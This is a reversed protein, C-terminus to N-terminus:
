HSGRHRGSVVRRRARARRPALFARGAAQDTAQLLAGACLHGVRQVSSHRRHHVREIGEHDTTPMEIRFGERQHVFDYEGLQVGVELGVAWLTAWAM